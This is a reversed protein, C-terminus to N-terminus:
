KSTVLITVYTSSFPVYLFCSLSALFYQKRLHTLSHLDTLSTYISSVLAENRVLVIADSFSSTSSISFLMAVTSEISKVIGDCGLLGSSVRAEYKLIATIAEISHPHQLQVTLPHEALIVSTTQQFAQLASEFRVRFRSTGLQDGM